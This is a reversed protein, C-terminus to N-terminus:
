YLITISRHLSSGAAGYAMIGTFSTNTTQGTGLTMMNNTVTLANPLAGRAQLYLYRQSNTAAYASNYTSANNIAYIKNRSITADTANGFSSVQLM